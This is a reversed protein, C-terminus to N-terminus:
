FFNEKDTQSSCFSVTSGALNQFSEKSQGKLYYLTNHIGLDGANSTKDNLNAGLFVFTWNEKEKEKILKKIADLSYEKSANEYGDTQIVFLAKKCEKMHPEMERITQGIADYLPTLADPQYNEEDLSSISDLQTLNYAIEVKRSNFKTLTMVVDKTEDKVSQVYENFSTITEKKLSGMSGTEDLLFGIVTKDKLDASVTEDKVIITTM